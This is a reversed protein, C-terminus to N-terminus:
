KSETQKFVKITKQFNEKNNKSSLKIEIDNEGDNLAIYDTSYFNKEKLILAQYNTTKNQIEIKSNQFDKFKCNKGEIRIASEKTLYKDQNQSCQISITKVSAISRSPENSSEYIHNASKLSPIQNTYILKFVLTFFVTILMAICIIHSSLFHKKM